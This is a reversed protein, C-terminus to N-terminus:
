LMLRAAMLVHTLQMALGWHGGKNLLYDLTKHDGMCAACMILTLCEANPRDAQVLKPQRATRVVVGTFLGDKNVQAHM